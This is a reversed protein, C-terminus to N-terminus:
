QVNPQSRGDFLDALPQKGDPGDFAYVKDIKVKALRRGAASLADRQRTFEKERSLLDKRAVLWEARSVTEPHNMQNAKIKPEMEELKMKAEESINRKNKKYLKGVAFTTLGGSSTVGAAMLAINTICVPCM